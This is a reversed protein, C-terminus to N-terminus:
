RKPARGGASEEPHNEDLYLRIRQRDTQRIASLHLGLRGKDDIRVVLANASIASYQGPLRFSLQLEAGVLLSSAPEVQMGQESINCSILTLSGGSTSCSVAMKVPVRRVRRRSELMTGRTSNL